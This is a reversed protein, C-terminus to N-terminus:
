AAAACPLPSGRRKSASIKARHEATLPPRRLPAAGASINLLDHKAGLAITWHREEQYRRDWPVTALIVFDPPILFQQLWAAFAPNQRALKAGNRNRWHQRVRGPPNRSHGVYRLPQRM